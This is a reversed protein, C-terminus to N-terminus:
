PRDTLATERLAEEYAARSFTFRGLTSLDWDRHTNRFASWHITRETVQIRTMLAWCEHIGCTCTLVMTEGDDRYFWPVDEPRDLLHRGPWGFGRPLCMYNGALLPAPEPAFEAERERQEERAYPLEAEYVLDLLRRGDIMIDIVDFPGKTGSEGWEPDYPVLRFEISHM